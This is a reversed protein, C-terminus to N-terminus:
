RMGQMAAHVVFHRLQGDHHHEVMGISRAVRISAENDSDITAWVADAGNALCWRCLARAGCSAVGRLRQDPVTMWSLEVRGDSERRAEVTGLLKGDISERVAFAPASVPRGGVGHEHLTSPANPSTRTAQIGASTVPSRQIATRPSCRTRTRPVSRPLCSGRPPCCPPRRRGWHPLSASTEVTESRTGM